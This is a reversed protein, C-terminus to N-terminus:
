DNEWGIKMKSGGLAYELSFECIRPERWRGLPINGIKVKVGVSKISNGICRILRQGAGASTPLVEEDVLGETGRWVLLEAVKVLDPM